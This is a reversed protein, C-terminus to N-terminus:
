AVCAARQARVQTTPLHGVGVASSCAHRYSLIGQCTRRPLGSLHTAGPHLGLCSLNALSFQKCLVDDRLAVTTPVPVSLIPPPKWQYCCPHWRHNCRHCPYHRGLHRGHVKKQSKFHDTSAPASQSCQAGNRLHHLGAHVVLNAATLRMYSSPWWITHNKQKADNLM